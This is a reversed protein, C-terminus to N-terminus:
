GQKWRDRESEQKVRVLPDYQGLGELILKLLWLLSIQCPLLAVYSSEFGIALNKSVDGNKSLTIMNELLYKFNRM